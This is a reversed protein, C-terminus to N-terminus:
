ALSNPFQPLDFCFGVPKIKTLTAQSPAFHKEILYLAIDKPLKDAYFILWAVRVKKDM